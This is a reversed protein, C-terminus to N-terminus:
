AGNGDIQTEAAPATYANGGDIENISNAVATNVYTETAIGTMSAGPAADIWSSGNWVFLRAQTEDYWLDGTAPTTPATVSITVSAGGGSAAAFSFTGDGNSTLVQGATGDTIGLDTLSTPVANSVAADVYSTTAYLSLDPASSMESGDPFIMTGSNTFRFEVTSSNDAFDYGPNIRIDDDARLHIDDGKADLYLDDGAEFFADTDEGTYLRNNSFIFDGLDITDVEGFVGGILRSVVVGGSGDYGLGGSYECMDVATNFAMMAFVGSNYTVVYSSGAGWYQDASTVAVGNNYPIDGQSVSTRIYNGTDYQDNGGDGINDIPYFARASAAVGSAVSGIYNNNGDTQV